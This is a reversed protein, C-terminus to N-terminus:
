KHEKGDLIKAVCLALDHRTPPDQRICWAAALVTANFSGLQAADRAERAKYCEGQPQTCDKNYQLIAENSQQTARIEGTVQYISVVLWALLIALAGLCAALVAQAYPRWWPTTNM